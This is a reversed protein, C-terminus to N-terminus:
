EGGLAARLRERASKCAPCGRGLCAPIKGPDAAMHEDQWRDFDDLAQKVREAWGAGDDKLAARAKVDAKVLLRWPSSESRDFWRTWPSWRPDDPYPEKLKPEVVILAKATEQIAHHTERLAEGRAARQGELLAVRARLEVAENAADVMADPPAGDTCCGQQNM